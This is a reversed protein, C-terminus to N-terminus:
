FFIDFDSSHDFAAAQANALATQWVNATNSGGMFFGQSVTATNAAVATATATSTALRMPLVDLKEAELEFM